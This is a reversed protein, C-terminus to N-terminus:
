YLANFRCVNCVGNVLGRWLAFLKNAKDEEFMAVLIFKLFVYMIYFLSLSFERFFNEKILVILNRTILYCREPSHNSTVIKVGILPIRRPFRNGIAHEFMPRTYIFNKLGLRRAKLCFDHDVWDLFFEERFGGVNRHTEISFFSGSSIVVKINVWQNDSNKRFLIGDIAGSNIDVYRTNMVGVKKRSLPGLLAERYLAVLSPYVATDDDLTLVWSCGQEAAWAVGQNLARGIGPNSNNKIIQCGQNRLTFLVPESSADETNDIIVVKQVQGLILLVRDLLSEEPHYTVIVAAIKPIRDDSM